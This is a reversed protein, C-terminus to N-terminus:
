DTAALLKPIRVLNYATNALTFIWGVGALGRHRTKRM